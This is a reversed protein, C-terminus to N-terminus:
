QSQVAGSKVVRVREASNNSEADGEILFVFGIKKERPLARAVADPGLLLAAKAYADSDAADPTIVTASLCRETKKANKAASKHSLAEGSRPDLIHGIAEGGGPRLRRWDGSTSLAEDRLAV